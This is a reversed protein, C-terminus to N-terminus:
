WPRAFPIPRTPGPCGGWRWCSCHGRLFAQWATAQGFFRRCGIHFLVFGGILFGNGVLRRTDLWDGAYAFLGATILWAVPTLAWYGLGLISPPYYRRMSGLVIGMVLAM